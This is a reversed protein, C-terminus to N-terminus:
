VEERIFPGSEMEKKTTEDEILFAAIISEALLKLTHETTTVKNLRDKVMNLHNGKAQTLSAQLNEKNFKLIERVVMCAALENDASRDFKIQYAEESIEIEYNLAGKITM